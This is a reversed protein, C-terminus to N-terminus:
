SSKSASTRPSGTTTRPKALPANRAQLYLLLFAGAMAVNKLFNNLQGSFQDPAAAWFPHGFFAAGLTYLGLAPAVWQLRWGAVLAIAGGIELAIALPLVVEPLPIGLSAFYGLTGGYAMLKRVGAILFILAMLSRALISWGRNTNEM